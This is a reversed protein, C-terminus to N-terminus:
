LSKQYIEMIVCKVVLLMLINIGLWYLYIYKYSCILCNSALHNGKVHVAFENLLVPFEEEPMGGLWLM